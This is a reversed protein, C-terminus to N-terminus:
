SPKRRSCPYLLQCMSSHHPVYGPRNMGSAMAGIQSGSSMAASTRRTESFPQWATVNESFGVLSPYGLKWVSWQSGNQRAQSSVPVTTQRWMPEDDDIATVESSAGTSTIIVTVGTLMRIHAASRIQDCTKRLNGFRRIASESPPMPHIGYKRSRM